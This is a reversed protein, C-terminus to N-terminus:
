APYPRRPKDPMKTGARTSVAFRAHIRHEQLIKIPQDLGFGQARHRRCGTREKITTGSQWLGALGAREQTNFIADAHDGDVPRHHAFGVNEGAHKETGGIGVHDAIAAASATACPMHRRQRSSRHPPQLALLLEESNEVQAYLENKKAKKKFISKDNKSLFFDGASPARDHRAQPAAPSNPAWM